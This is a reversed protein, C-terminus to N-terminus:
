KRRPAFRVFIRYDGGDIDRPLNYGEPILLVMVRGGAPDQNMQGGRRDKQGDPPKGPRRRPPRVNLIRAEVMGPGSGPGKRPPPGVAVPAGIVIEM